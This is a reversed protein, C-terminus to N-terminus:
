KSSWLWSIFGSNFIIFMIGRKKMTKSLRCFLVYMQDHPGSKYNLCQPRKMSVHRFYIMRKNGAVNPNSGQIDWVHLYSLRADLSNSFSAYRHKKLPFESITISVHVSLLVAANSDLSLTNFLFQNLVHVVNM